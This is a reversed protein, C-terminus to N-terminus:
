ISACTLWKGTVRVTKYSIIFEILCDVNGQHLTQPYDPLHLALRQPLQVRACDCDCLPVCACDPLLAVTVM